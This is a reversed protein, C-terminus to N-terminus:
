NNDENERECQTETGGCIRYLVQGDQHLIRYHFKRSEDEDFTRTDDQKVELEAQLYYGAVTQSSQSVGTMCYQYVHGKDERVDHPIADIFQETLLPSGDGLMWSTHDSNVTCHADATPAQGYHNYTNNYQELARKLNTLDARRLDDRVQARANIIAPILLLLMTALLLALTLYEWQARTLQM